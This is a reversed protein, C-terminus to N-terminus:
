VGIAYTLDSEYLQQVLEGCDAVLGDIEGQLASRENDALNIEQKYQDVEYWDYCNGEDDDASGLHELIRCSTKITSDAFEELHEIVGTLQTHETGKTRLILKDAHQHTSEGFIYEM